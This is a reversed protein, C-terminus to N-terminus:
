DAMRAIIVSRAEANQAVPARIDIEPVALVFGISKLTYATQRAPRRNVFHCFDRCYEIDVVHPAGLLPKYNM